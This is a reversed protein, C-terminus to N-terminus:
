AAPGLLTLQVLAGLTFQGRSSPVVDLVVGVGLRGDDFLDDGSGVSILLGSGGAGAESLRARASGHCLELLTDHIYTLEPTPEWAEADATADAVTRVLPSSGPHEQWV